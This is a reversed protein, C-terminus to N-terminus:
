PMLELQVEMACNETSCPLPVFYSCSQSNAKSELEGFAFTKFKKSDPIKQLVRVEWKKEGPAYSNFIKSLDEKFKPFESRSPQEVYEDLLIQKITSGAAPFEMAANIDNQCLLAINAADVTAHVLMVKSGGIMMIIAFFITFLIIAFAIDALQSLGKKNSKLSLFYNSFNPKKLFKQKSKM